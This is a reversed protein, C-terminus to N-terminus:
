SQYLRCSTYMASSSASTQVPWPSMAQEFDDDVGDVLIPLTVRYDTKFRRAIACREATTTPAKVDVAIGDHAYRASAIPWIDSAHAEAIYIM